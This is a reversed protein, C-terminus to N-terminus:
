IHKREPYVWAALGFFIVVVVALVLAQYWHDIGAVAAYTLPGAISLAILTCAIVPRRSRTTLLRSGRVHGLETREYQTRQNVNMNAMEDEQSL